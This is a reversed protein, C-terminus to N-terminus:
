EGMGHLPQPAAEKARKVHEDMWREMEWLAHGVSERARYGHDEMPLVVHRVTGGLGRVAAALRESQVPFTGPNSDEGGHILLLPENIKGAHTFPSMDVYTETAEWFNRQEGQFGFPTLTRNYAGSRGIGARFLETHALLNATTFAGYSHGGVALRNPDAVGRKVFCDVAAEAGMVLQRVYTDNPETEGEGIIPLSPDNVIAYGQTVLLLHSAGSPRVFVNNSGSVRGAADKDKFEQPYTWFLTPLPGKAPTWGPPTYLTASLEVGDSRKYTVIEPKVGAFQPAPDPYSTLAVVRDSDRVHLMYNMPDTASERRTIFRSAGDDLIDVVFEFWPDAARWLRETKGTALDIRDLFPYQGKPSAGPGSLYAFKGGDALRVVDEGLANTTTLFRGPNAYADESSYDLVPTPAGPKSPDLRWTRARRTDYWSETVLCLDERAWWTGSYRLESEWLTVPAGTFPADLQRLADRKAVTTKADGGDLAEAWALTAPKDARWSVNRPGKRVSDFTIPIDDALPLDAVVHVVHGQRDIVETKLPFRWAPVRYSWPRHVSDVLIFRGDPSINFSM